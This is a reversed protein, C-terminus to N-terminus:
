LYQLLSSPNDIITIRKEATEYLFQEEKMQKIHSILHNYFGGSNLIYIEKDHITLQNWTIIEFLEDLTGFGGPLVIAADSVSYIKKKREHMDDCIILETIGRHQVEWELLLQPIYGTVKGGHLMVSDAISGMIGASGGGYILRINKEAIIKGLEIAHETFLGTTGHKSGCFVALSQIAM